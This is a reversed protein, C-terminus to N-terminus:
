MKETCVSNSDYPDKTVTVKLKTSIQEDSYAAKLTQKESQEFEFQIEKGMQVLDEVTKPFPPKLFRRIEPHLTSIIYRIMEEENADVYLRHYLARKKWVFQEFPEWRRQPLDLDRKIAERVLLRECYQLFAVKFDHWSDITEKRYEWWKKAAGKLHNDVQSLWVKEDWGSRKFYKELNVIFERPDESMNADFEPPSLIDVSIVVWEHPECEKKPSPAYPDVIDQSLEAEKKKDGLFGFGQFFRRPKEDIKSARYVAQDTKSVMKEFRSFVDRWSNMERKVWRELNVLTDQCRMLCAKISRKWRRIGVAPAEDTMNANLRMVSRKFGKLESEVQRSVGSLIYVQTKRVRDLMEAPSCTGIQLAVTQEPNSLTPVLMGSAAMTIAM